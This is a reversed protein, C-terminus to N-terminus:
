TQPVPMAEASVKYWVSPEAFTNGSYGYFLRSEADLYFHVGYTVRFIILVGFKNFGDTMNQIVGSQTLRYIGPKDPYQTVTTSGPVSFLNQVANLVSTAGTGGQAVSVPQKTTLIQYSKSSELGSDPAPLSYTEYVSTSGPAYERFLFQNNNFLAYIANLNNPNQGNADQFFIAKNANSRFVFLDQIASTPALVMRPVTLTGTMTDGSKNVKGALATQQATSVPKDADSTNDVNGLGVDAKAAATAATVHGEANTTIKYLGSAFASGKAAAHDYAAAGRDGRYATSSTEGLALSPSIEVYGSGSWRYTKNATTDVYIKGTEGTTPFASMSAYEVVDDVYSPLQASPVKGGSDLEAVGGAAGKQSADLKGSLLTDTQTKTYADIDNAGINDRAQAQQAATLSQARDFRVSGADRLNVTDGNVNLKDREYTSM